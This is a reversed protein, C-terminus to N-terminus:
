ACGRWRRLLFEVTVVQYVGLAFVDDRADAVGAGDGLELMDFAEFFRATLELFDEHTRSFWKRSM